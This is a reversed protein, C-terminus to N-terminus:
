RNIIALLRLLQLYLWVLTMILGFAARWSEGEPARAAVLDEIVKFDIALTFAALAVGAVCLLIGLPGTGFFGWGDGTGFFIASILSVIAILGYGIMAIWWFRMVTNTVKIIRTTYLVLMAVFAAFTGLVAQAVINPQDPNNQNVWQQIWYSIGGVVIGEFVAYALFVVPRVTRSLAGWMGLGFAVLAAIMLIGYSIELSWAVYAAVLLPVFMVASKAVVDAITIPNTSPVTPPAIYGQDVVTAEPATATATATPTTGFGAYGGNRKAEEEMRSLVPNKSQM